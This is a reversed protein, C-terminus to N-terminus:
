ARGATVDPLKAIAHQLTDRNIRTYVAHIAESEHGVLEQSVAQGVGASQLLSTITYRLSHFSIESKARKGKRAEGDGSKRHLKAPTLGAQAMLEAFQRSLTGTKKECQVVDFARPHIPAKPDDGAPLNEVHRQLAGHMPVIQRRGTKSTVLRVEGRQLDVNQWTLAAVDRLRQGTYLGFLIMSQWETDAVSLLARLEAETFPRRTSREVPLTDVLEAPNEFLLGERKAAKLIMRLTKLDHNVTKATVRAATANRYALIDKTTLTRLDNDARQGAWKLFDRVVKTYFLWTPYSVEPKRVELWTQCHERVTVTLIPEGTLERYLDSIIEQIKSAQLKGRTIAEFLNAKDQAKRRNDATDRADKGKIPIRTSRQTQNGDPKTFCAIWYSSGPHKRLSAM